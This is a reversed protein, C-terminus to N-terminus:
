SPDKAPTDPKTDAPATEFVLDLDDILTGEPTIIIAKGPM